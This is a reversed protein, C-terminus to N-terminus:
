EGDILNTEFMRERYRRWAEEHCRLAAEEEPALCQPREPLPETTFDHAGADDACSALHQWNSRPQGCATCAPNPWQAYLLVAGRAKHPGRHGEKQTCRLSGCRSLASCAQTASGLPRAEPDLTRPDYINM